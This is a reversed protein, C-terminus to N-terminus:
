KDLNELAFFTGIKMKKKYFLNKEKVLM